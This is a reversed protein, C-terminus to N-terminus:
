ANESGSIDIAYPTLFPSNLWGNDRLVTYRYGGSIETRTNALGSYKYSFADGDHVMEKSLTGSFDAVVMIRRFPLDDTIDFTILDNRGLASGTPPSVITIEPNSGSFSPTPTEISSSIFFFAEDSISFEGVEFELTEIFDIDNFDPM